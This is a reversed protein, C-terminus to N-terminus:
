RPVNCALYVCVAVIGSVAIMGVIAAWFDIDNDGKLDSVVGRFQLVRM